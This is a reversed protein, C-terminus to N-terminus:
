TFAASSIWAAGTWICLKNNTLDIALPVSGTSGTPSGPNGTPKGLSYPLWVYGATASTALAAGGFHLIKNSSSDIRMGASGNTGIIASAAGGAGFWANTAGTTAAILDGAASTSFVLNSSGSIEVRAEVATRGLSLSSATGSARSLITLPQGHRNPIATGSATINGLTEYNTGSASNTWNAVNGDFVCGMLTFEDAGGDTLLGVTTAGRIQVGMISVQTSPVASANIIAIGTVCNAVSGGVISVSECGSTQIGTQVSAVVNGSLSIFYGESIEIGSAYTTISSPGVVNNAVSCYFPYQTEGASMGGASPDGTGNWTPPVAIVGGGVGPLNLHANSFDDGRHCDYVHNMVISAYVGGVFIGPMRLGSVTCGYVMLNQCQTGGPSFIGYLGGGATAASTWATYSGLAPGDIRCFAVTNNFGGMSIGHAHFNTVKVRLITNNRGGTGVGATVSQDITIESEGTTLTLNNTRNGDVTLDAVTVNSLGFAFIPSRSSSNRRKIVTSDIGSGRITIGDLLTIASTAALYVGAGLQITGGTSVGAATRWSTVAALAATWAADPDGAGDNITTGSAYADLFFVAGGKDRLKAELGGLRQRAVETADISWALGNADPYWGTDTNGTHALSPAAATGSALTLDTLGGSFTATSSFTAPVSFTVGAKNFLAITTPSDVAGYQVKLALGNTTDRNGVTVGYVSTSNSQIFKGPNEGGSTGNIFSVVENYLSSAIIDDPSASTIAM